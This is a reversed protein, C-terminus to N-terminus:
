HHNLKPIELEDHHYGWNAPHNIEHFIGFPHNQPVGVKPFRWTLLQFSEYGVDVDSEYGGESVIRYELSLQPWVVYSPVRSIEVM